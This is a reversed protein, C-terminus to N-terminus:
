KIVARIVSEPGVFGRVFHLGSALPQFVQDGPGTWVIADHHERLTARERRATQEELGRM